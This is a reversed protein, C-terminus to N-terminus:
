ASRDALAHGEGLLCEICSSGGRESVWYVSSPASLGTTEDLEIAPSRELLECARERGAALLATSWVEAQAASAHFVTCSARESIAEGTRPDLVDSRTERASGPALTTSTSVAGCVLPFEALHDPTENPPAFPDEIGVLWPGDEARRGSAAVSSGGGSLLWDEAGERLLAERIRDLAYGKGFAGLDISTEPWAFRVACRGPSFSLPLGEGAGVNVPDSSRRSSPFPEFWGDTARRYRAVDILAEFLEPEVRVWDSAGDRNLRYVEAAPDFRSLLREVRAVEDLAEDAVRRLREADPGVLVVEFLTRMAPRRALITRTM